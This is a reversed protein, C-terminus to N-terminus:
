CEGWDSGSISLNSQLPSTVIACPHCLVHRGLRLTPMVSARPYRPVRPFQDRVGCVARAEEFSDVQHLFFTEPGSDGPNVKQGRLNPSCGLTYM